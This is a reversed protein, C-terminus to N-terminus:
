GNRLREKTVKIVKEVMWTLEGRWSNKAARVMSVEATTERPKAM